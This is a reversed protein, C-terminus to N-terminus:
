LGGTVQVERLVIELLERESLRRGRHREYRNQDKIMAEIMKEQARLAGRPTELAARYRELDERTAQGGAVQVEFLWLLARKPRWWGGEPRCGFRCRLFGAVGWLRCIAPRLDYVGCSNFMTLAPCMKPGPPLVPIDVQHRDRIRQRELPTMDISGCCLPGCRGRCEMAPLQAYLADLDAESM